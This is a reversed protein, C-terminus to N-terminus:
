ELTKTEASRRGEADYTFKTLTGKRRGDPALSSEEREVIRGREDFTEKLKKVSNRAADLEEDFTIMADRAGYIFAVVHLTEDANFVVRRLLRGKADKLEHVAPKREPSRQQATASSATAVCLLLSYVGVRSPIPM